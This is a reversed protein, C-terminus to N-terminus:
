RRGLIFLLNIFYAIQKPMFIIVDHSAAVRLVFRLKFSARDMVVDASPGNTDGRVGIEQCWEKKVDRKAIANNNEPRAKDL